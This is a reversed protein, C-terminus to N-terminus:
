KDQEPIHMIVYLKLGVVPKISGMSVPDNYLKVMEGHTIVALYENGDITITTRKPWGPLIERLDLPKSIKKARTPRKPM